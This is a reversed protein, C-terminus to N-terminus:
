TKRTLKAAPIGCVLGEGAFLSNRIQWIRYIDYILTLSSDRLKQRKDFRSGEALAESHRQSV